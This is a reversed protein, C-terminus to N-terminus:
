PFTCDGFPIWDSGMAFKLTCTAKFRSGPKLKAMRAAEKDSSTSLRALVDDSGSAGASLVPEGSLNAGVDIMVGSISVQQDYQPLSLTSNGAKVYAAHLKSLEM